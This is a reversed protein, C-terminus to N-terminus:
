LPRRDTKKDRQNNVLKKLNPIINQNFNLLNLSKMNMKKIASSQKNNKMLKVLSYYQPNINAITNM